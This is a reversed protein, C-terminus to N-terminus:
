DAARKWTFSDGRDGLGMIDLLCRLYYIVMGYRIYLLEYFLYGRGESTAVASVIGVALYDSLCLKM